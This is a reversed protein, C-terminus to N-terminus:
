EVDGMEERVRKLIRYKAQRVAGPTMALQAAVDKATQEEVVTLWFARWASQSFEGQVFDLVRCFLAKTTSDAERADHDPSNEIWRLAESGGRGGPEAANRRVYDVARSKFITRLWGRFTSKDSERRFSDISQAVTRFVDQTVDETEEPSLKSRRCWHCILPTYLVVM